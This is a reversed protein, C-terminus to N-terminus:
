AARNVVALYRELGNREFRRIWIAAVICVAVSAVVVFWWFYQLGFTAVLLRTSVQAVGAAVLGAYSWTMFKYHAFVRARREKPTAASRARRIMYIGGALTIASVVSLAHFATFGNELMPIGALLLVGMAGSYAYGIRRHNRNAKPQRLAQWGWWLALLAALAHVGGAWSHIIGM